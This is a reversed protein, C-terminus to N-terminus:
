SKPRMSKVRESAVSGHGTAESLMGRKSARARCKDQPKVVYQARSARICTSHPGPASPPRVIQHRHGCSPCRQAPVLLGVDRDRRRCSLHRFFAENAGCSDAGPREQMRVHCWCCPARLFAPPSILHRTVDDTSCFFERCPRRVRSPRCIEAGHHPSTAVPSVQFNVQAFM